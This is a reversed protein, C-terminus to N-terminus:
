FAPMYPAHRIRKRKECFNDASYLGSNLLEREQVGQYERDLVFNGKM